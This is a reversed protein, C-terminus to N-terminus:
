RLNAGRQLIPVQTTARKPYHKSFVTQMIARPRSPNADRRRLVAKYNDPNDLQFIGLSEHPSPDFIIENRKNLIVAHAKRYIMNVLISIIQDNARIEHDFNILPFEYKHFVASEKTNKIVVLERKYKKLYKNWHYFCRQPGDGIQPRKLFYEVPCEMKPYHGLYYAICCLMCDQNTKQKIM